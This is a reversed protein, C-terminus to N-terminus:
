LCLQAYSALAGDARLSAWLTGQFPERAFVFGATTGLHTSTAAHETIPRKGGFADIRFAFLPGPSDGRMAELEEMKGLAQPCFFQRVTWDHPLQPEGVLVPEMTAGPSYWLKIGVTPRLMPGADPSDAPLEAALPPLPQQPTGTSEESPQNVPNPPDDGMSTVYPRPPQSSRRRKHPLEDVDGGDRKGRSTSGRRNAEAGGLVRLPPRPAPRPASTGGSAQPQPQPQHPQPVPASLTSEEQCLEAPPNPAEARQSPTRAFFNTLLSSCPKRTTCEVSPGSSPAPPKSNAVAKPVDAAAASSADSSVRPIPEATPTSDQTSTPAPAECTAAKRRSQHQTRPPPPTPYAPGAEPDVQLRTPRTRTRDAMGKAAEAELQIRMDEMSRKVPLDLVVSLFRVQKAKLSGLSEREEMHQLRAIVEDASSGEGLATCAAPIDAQGGEVRRICRRLLRAFGDMHTSASEDVDSLMTASEGECRSSYPAKADSATYSNSTGDSACYKAIPVISLSAVQFATHTIRSKPVAAVLDAPAPTRCLLTPRVVPLEFTDPSNCGSAVGAGDGHPEPM